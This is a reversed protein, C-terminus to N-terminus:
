SRPFGDSVSRTDDVKAFGASEFLARTEVFAM